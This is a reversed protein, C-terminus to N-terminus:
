RWLNRGRIKGLLQLKNIEVNTEGRIGILISVVKSSNFRIEQLFRSVRDGWRSILARAKKTSIPSKSIGSQFREDEDNESPFTVSSQIESQMAMRLHHKVSIHLYVLDSLGVGLTSVM